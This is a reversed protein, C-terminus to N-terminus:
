QEMWDKFFSEHAARLDTLPITIVNSVVSGDNVEIVIASGGVHGIPDFAIEAEGLLRRVDNPKSTTLVYRAQGEGFGSEPATM